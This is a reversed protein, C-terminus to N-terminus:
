LLSLFGGSVSNKYPSMILNGLGRAKDLFTSDKTLAYASILGGLYDGVLDSLIYEEEDDSIEFSENIIQVAERYETNLGMIHLTSLSAIANRCKDFGMWSYDKRKQSDWNPAKAYKAFSKQAMKVIFNARAKVEDGGIKECIREKPLTPEM